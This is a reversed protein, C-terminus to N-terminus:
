IIRGCDSGAYWRRPRDDTSTGRRRWRQSVGGGSRLLGTQGAIAEPANLSYSLLMM